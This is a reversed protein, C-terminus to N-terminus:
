VHRGSQHVAQVPPLRRLFHGAIPARSNIQLTVTTGRGPESDIHIEGGMQGMFERCLFLGLGADSRGRKESYFQRFARDKLDPSMGKGKDEIVVKLTDDGLKQLTICIEPNAGPRFAEVANQLINSFVQFLKTEDAYAYAAQDFKRTIAIANVNGGCVITLASEIV